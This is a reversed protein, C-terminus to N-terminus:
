RVTFDQKLPTNESSDGVYVTFQGPDVRWDNSSTDWYALSRKDLTLTVHQTAGPEIRVKQYGKLEKVPRKVKASPDGIYLQAVTAGARQGANTLDFTVTYPGDASGSDPSVKLNSFSFNTYSLGFGFPFLPQKNMSTYYRYGVFLGESYKVHPTQGAPVAPAYYTDHVPNDEWAREWSMPLHGEPSREGFLIEALATGGEQGPYWNHVLAPISALWKRTDVGGGATIAVITNRNALAVAQILEDQGWPLAFTRDFGESETTPDFGAAVLAVDASAALKAVEPSVFEDATRIGVGLRPYAADPLYDVQVNVLKGATLQVEAYQPAQGERKPQELVTKGDLMVKYSDSGGAGALVLYAGTKKPMYQATMRMSKKQPASPTWEESKFSAIRSSYTVDPTGSFNPNNFTEIKVAKSHTDGSNLYFDTTGFFDATSPLGRAYVVKVKEGLHDSLGTLISVPSFATVESSGGAGPVAPWADPGFVAITHVKDTSLPLLNGDNKLLTISERAEDLAVQSGAQSYLPISPDLQDRDLFGFRIATRFIRRVKDDITAESVQGNKVAALLNKPNMFKGSPMELDLGCNAAGVADYTADWDSMLIGNFAWEKKLIENNLPCNQTAHVGNLLNYSNMVSGVGAVRVAAEFAPLYLERLTREDVDSSVNHRDYEQNNAAFHKVTAIVGQSQVGEIYPVVTHASLYPDEGFYEFNRGNMPARYINVGPGLLFHVGRARADQAIAVGMRQALAPDWSAALAIGGAYATDPGWTRIGDPGDSMKLQPFGAGPEARIFMDHEGGILELKQELTLKGIMADVRQEIAPSDPV